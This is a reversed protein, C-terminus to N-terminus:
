TTAAPASRAVAAAFASGPPCLAAVERADRPGTVDTLTPLMAVRVGLRLVALALSGAGAFIEPMGSLAVAYAPQRLGFAWWGGSTTPGLVADFDALLGAARDLLAPGAQPTATGVLLRPARRPGAGALADQPGAAVGARGPAAVGSGTLAAVARLTDARAADALLAAQEPAYPPSLRARLGTAGAPETVVVRVARDGDDHRGDCPRARVGIPSIHRRHARLLTM